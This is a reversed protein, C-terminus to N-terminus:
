GELAPIASCPMVQSPGYPEIVGTEVDFTGIVVLVFDAPFMVISSNKMSPNLMTSKLQRVADEDTKGLFPPSYDGKKSDHVSYLFSASQSKERM